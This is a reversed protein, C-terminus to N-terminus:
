NRMQGQTELTYSNHCGSVCKKTKSSRFHVSLFYFSLFRVSFSPSLFILQNINSQTSSPVHTLAIRNPETVTHM